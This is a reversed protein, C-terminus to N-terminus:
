DDFSDAIGELIDGIAEMLIPFVTPFIIGTLVLVGIIGSIWYIINM